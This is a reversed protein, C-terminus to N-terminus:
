QRLLIMTQFTRRKFKEKWIAEGKRVLQIPSLQLKNLLDLLEPTTPAKDLYLIVEPDIANKLLALTQRSKFM